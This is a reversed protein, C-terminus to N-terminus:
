DEFKKCFTAFNGRKVMFPRAGNKLQSDNGYYVKSGYSEMIYRYPVEHMYGGDLSSIFTMSEEVPDLMCFTSWGMKFMRQMAARNQFINGDEPDTLDDKNFIVINSTYNYNNPSHSSKHFASADVFGQSNYLIDREVDNKGIKDALYRGFPLKSIINKVSRIVKRGISKYFAESQRSFYDDLMANELDKFNKIITPIVKVNINVTVDKDYKGSNPGGHYILPIEVTAGTPIIDIKGEIPKYSGTSSTKGKSGAKSKDSSIKAADLEIKRILNFTHDIRAMLSSKEARTLNNDSVMAHRVSNVEDYYDKRLDEDKGLEDVSYKYGLDDLQDTYKKVTTADETLYTSEVLYQKGNYNNQCELLIPGYNGKSPEYIRKATLTGSAFADQIQLLFFREICKAVAPVIRKDCNESVSAPYIFIM